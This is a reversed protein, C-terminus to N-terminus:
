ISNFGPLYATTKAALSLHPFPLLNTEALIYLPKGPNISVKTVELPLFYLQRHTTLDVELQFIQPM